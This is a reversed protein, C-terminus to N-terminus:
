IVGGHSTIYFDCNEIRLNDTNQAHIDGNTNVVSNQVRLNRITIYNVSILSICNNRTQEAMLLQCIEPDMLMM